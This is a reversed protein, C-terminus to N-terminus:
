TETIEQKIEMDTVVVIRKCYWLKGCVPCRIYFFQEVTNHNLREEGASKAESERLEATCNQCTMM